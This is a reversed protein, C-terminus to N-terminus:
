LRGFELFFFFFFSLFPFIFCFDLGLILIFIQFLFSQQRELVLELSMFPEFSCQKDPCFLM